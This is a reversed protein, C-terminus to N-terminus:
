GARDVLEPYPWGQQGKELILLQGESIGQEILYDYTRKAGGGGRPCIILIPTNQDKINGLAADLKAKDQPSKVPYAYTGIAGPLHHAFFENEVQIDLLFLAENAEMKQKALSPSLYNYGGAFAQSVFAAMFALFLLARTVM